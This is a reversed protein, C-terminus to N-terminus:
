GLFDGGSSSSDLENYSQFCLERCASGADAPVNFSDSTKGLHMGHLTTNLVPKSLIVMKSHIQRACRRTRPPHVPWTRQSELNTEKDRGILGQLLGEAGTEGMRKVPQYRSSRDDM